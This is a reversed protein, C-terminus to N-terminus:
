KYHTPGHPVDEIMERIRARDWLVKERKLPCSPMPLEKAILRDIIKQREPDKLGQVRKAIKEATSNNSGM